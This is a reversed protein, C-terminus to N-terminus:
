GPKKGDLLSHVEEPDYYYMGRVKAPNLLGNIRLNQLTGDSCSLLAKVDSSKYKKKAPKNDAYLRHVEKMIQEKMEELDNVTILKAEIMM